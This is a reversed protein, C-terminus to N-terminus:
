REDKVSEEEEVQLIRVAGTCASPAENGLGENALYTYQARTDRVAKTTSLSQQFKSIKRTVRLFNWIKGLEVYKM